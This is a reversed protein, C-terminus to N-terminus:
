WGVPLEEGKCNRHRIWSTTEYDCMCWRVHLLVNSNPLYKSMCLSSSGRTLVLLREGGGGLLAFFLASFSSAALCSAYLRHPSGLELSLSPRCCLCYRSCFILFCRLLCLFLWLPLSSPWSQSTIGLTCVHQAQTHNLMLFQAKLFVDTGGEM